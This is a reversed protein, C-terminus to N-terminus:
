REGGGVAVRATRLAGAMADEIAAGPEGNVTVYQVVSRAGETFNSVAGTARQVLSTASGAIGASVAGAAVQNNREQRAVEDDIMIGAARMYAGVVEGGTRLLHAFERVMSLVPELDLGITRLAPGLSRAMALAWVKASRAGATFIGVISGLLDLMGPLFPFLQAFDEVLGGIMSEGGMAFTYLDEAVLYVSFLAAAVAAILLAAPAFGVGLAAGLAGVTKLAGSATMRIARFGADVKDINALILLFGLGTAFQYLVADWGGVLRVTADLREFAWVVARIAQDVRQGIIQRNAAIWDRVGRVVRTVAPALLVGIENRLGKGTALLRRWEVALARGAALADDGMVVGLDRAEQRMRDLGASGENLLPIVRAGMDDGLIRVAATLAKNRDTAGGVRDAFLEFLEIPRKNRLEDVGIGVLRFDDIFSEMGGKADEARDTLTGLVDAIDSGDAGVQEFAHAVEQYEQRTMNLARARREIEETERATALAAAGAATAAAAVGIALARLGALAGQAASKVGEIRKEFSEAQQGAKPDVTFGLRVLLDRLAGAANGAPM